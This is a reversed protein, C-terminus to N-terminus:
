RGPKEPKQAMVVFRVEGEFRPVLVVQGPHTFAETAFGRPRNLKWTVTLMKGAVKLDTIEVSYGGTPKVGGTVVILMQKGWDIGEVKLAKALEAAAQKEVIQQPADLKSFPTAAVLEAASRLVLKHGEKNGDPKASAYSWPAKAIIKLERTDKDGAQSLGAALTPGTDISAITFFLATAWV